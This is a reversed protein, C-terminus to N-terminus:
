VHSPSQVVVTVIRPNLSRRYWRHAIFLVSLKTGTLHSFVSLQFLAILDPSPLLLRLFIYFDVGYDNNWEWGWILRKTTM